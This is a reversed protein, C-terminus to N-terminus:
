DDMSKEVIQNDFENSRELEEDRERLLKMGTLRVDVKDFPGITRFEDEVKIPSENTFLQMHTDDSTPLM